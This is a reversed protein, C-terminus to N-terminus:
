EFETTTFVAMSFMGDKISIGIIIRKYQKKMLVDYHDKSGLLANTFHEVLFNRGQTKGMAVCEAFHRWERNRTNEYQQVRVGCNRHAAERSFRNRQINFYIHNSDAWDTAFCFTDAEYKLTDVGIRQREANIIKAAVRALSDHEQGQVIGASLFLAIIILKM